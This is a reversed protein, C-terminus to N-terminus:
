ARKLMIQRQHVCSCKTCGSSALQSGEYIIPNGQEHSSLRGPDLGTRAKHMRAGLGLRMFDENVQALRKLRSACLQASRRRNGRPFHEVIAQLHWILCGKDPAQPEIRPLPHM